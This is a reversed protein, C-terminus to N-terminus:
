EMVSTRLDEVEKITRSILKQVKSFILNINNIDKYQEEPVFKKNIASESFEYPTVLNTKAASLYSLCRAFEDRLLENIM